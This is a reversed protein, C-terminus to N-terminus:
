CPCSIRRSGRDSTAPIARAALLRREKILQPLRYRFIAAILGAKSGFHYHVASNNASGAETSIQRLSVGEIGNMAFLREAAIVIRLASASPAIAEAADTVTTLRGNCRSTKSCPRGRTGAYAGFHVIIEKMEDYSVDGSGLASTVHSWIPDSPMASVGVCPITVLRRERRSLGPRLWLHGFVFNLIGAHFYPSDAPAGPHPQDGRVVRRRRRNAARQRRARARRDVARPIAPVPEGREEHLRQWQGRVTMELQSARPWGCYVAFHLTFENLQEITLDGCAARRVRTRGHCPRRGGRERVRDDRHPPRSHDAGAPEVRGEFLREREARDLPDRDEPPETAMVTRYIDDTTM